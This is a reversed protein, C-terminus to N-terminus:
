KECKIKRGANEKEQQQDDYFDAFIDNANVRTM